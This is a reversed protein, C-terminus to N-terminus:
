YIDISSVLITQIMDYTLPEEIFQSHCRLLFQFSIHLINGMYMSTKVSLWCILWLIIGVYLWDFIAYHFFILGSHNLQSLAVLRNIRSCFIINRFSFTFRPTSMLKLIYWSTFCTNCENSLNNGHKLVYDKLGSMLHELNSASTESQKCTNALFVKEYRSEPVDCDEAVLQIAVSQVFFWLLDSFSTLIWPNQMLNTSNSWIIDNLEIIPFYIQM